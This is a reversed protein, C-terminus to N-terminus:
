TESEKNDTLLEDVTCGYMEAIERLKEGRPITKGTEWQSVAAASIGFKEAVAAQSLNAKRRASLFSL